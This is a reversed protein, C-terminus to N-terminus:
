EMRRVASPTTGRTCSDKTKVKYAAYIRVEADLCDFQVNNVSLLVPTWSLPGQDVQAIAADRCSLMSAALWITLRLLQDRTAEAYRSIGVLDAVPDIRCGTDVEM